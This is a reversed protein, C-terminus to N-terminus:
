IQIYWRCEDHGSYISKELIIRKVDFITQFFQDMHGLSCMCFTDDYELFEGKNILGCICKKRIVTITKNIEDYTMYTNYKAEKENLNIICNEISSSNDWIEQVFTSWSKGCCQKGCEFLVRYTNDIGITEKMRIMLTEIYKTQDKKKLNPFELSDFLIKIMENEFGLMRMNKTIRGLRGTEQYKM